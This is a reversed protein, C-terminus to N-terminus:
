MLDCRIVLRGKARVLMQRVESTGGQVVRSGQGDQMCLDWYMPFIWGGIGQTHVVPYDVCLFRIGMRVTSGAASRTFGDFESSPPLKRLHCQHDNAADM